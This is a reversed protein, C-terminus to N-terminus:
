DKRDVFVPYRGMQKNEEIEKVLTRYNRQVVRENGHNFKRGLKKNNQHYESSSQKRRWIKATLTYFCLKQTNSSEVTGFIVCSLFSRFPSNFCFVISIFLQDAAAKNDSFEFSRM